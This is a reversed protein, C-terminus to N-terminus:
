RSRDLGLTRAYLCIDGSRLAELRAPTAPLALMCALEASGKSILIHEQQRHDQEAALATLPERVSRFGADLYWIVGVFGALLVVLLIVNRGKASLTAGFARLTLGNEAQPPAPPTEMM